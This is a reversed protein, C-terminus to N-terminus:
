MAWALNGPDTCAPVGTQLVERAQCVALGGVVLLIAGREDETHIVLRHVM